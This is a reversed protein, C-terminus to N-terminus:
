HQGPRRRLRRQHQLPREGHAPWDPLELRPRPPALAPACHPNCSCGLPHASRALGLQHAGRALGLQHARQAGSRVATSGSSSPRRRPTPRPRLTGTARRRHPPRRNRTPTHALAALPSLLPSCRSAARRTGTTSTAAPPSASPSTALTSSPRSRRTGAQLSRPLTRSHTHSTQSHTPNPTQTHTHSTQTHTHTHTFPSVTHPKHAYTHTHPLRPM